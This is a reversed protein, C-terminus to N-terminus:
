EKAMEDQKPNETEVPGEMGDADKAESVGAGVQTAEEDVVIVEPSPVLGQMEEGQAIPPDQVGEETAVGQVTCSLGPINSVDPAGFPNDLNPAILESAKASIKERSWGFAAQLDFDAPLGQVVKYSATFYGIKM